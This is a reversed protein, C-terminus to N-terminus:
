STSDGKDGRQSPLLRLFVVATYGTHSCVMAQCDGSSALSPKSNELFGWLITVIPGNKINGQSKLFGWKLLQDKNWRIWFESLIFFLFFDRDGLCKDFSILLLQKVKYSGLAISNTPPFLFNALFFKLSRSILHRDPAQSPLSNYSIDQCMGSM